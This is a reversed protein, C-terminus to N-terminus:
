HESCAASVSVTLFTIFMNNLKPCFESMNLEVFDKVRQDNGDAFNTYELMGSYVNLESYLEKESM